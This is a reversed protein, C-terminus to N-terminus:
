FEGTAGGGGFTGGGPRLSDDSKMQNGGMSQSIVFAELGSNAWKESLLNERTFGNRVERLYNLLVISILLLILGWVTLTIELPALSYYYKFTFVSGALVILSIRLLVKDRNKIGFYLFSIPIVVTLVYFIFAFPIDEGAELVLGMMAISLERVVLYNGGLYVLLLSACEVVFLNYRWLRWKSERKLIRAFFYLTTFSVIFVFPIIQQFIGGWEFCQYFLIGALSLIAAGTCVLDLYRIASFTFVLCCGFLIVIPYANVLGGVVFACAHYLVAETVGSKYHNKRIFFKELAYFSAIGYIVAAVSLSTEGFEDLFMFFLGAVGSLAILTAIFLLMRIVFNPHYFPAKYVENIRIFQQGDILEQKHWRKTEKLVALNYVWDAQYASKM